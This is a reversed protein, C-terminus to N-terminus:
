QAHNTRGTIWCITITVATAGAFAIAAIAFMIWPESLMWLYIELM